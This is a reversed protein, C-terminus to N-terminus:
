RNIKGTTKLHEEHVKKYYYELNRLSSKMDYGRHADLWLKILNYLNKDKDTTEPHHWDFETYIQGITVNHWGIDKGNKLKM